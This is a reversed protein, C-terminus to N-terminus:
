DIQNNSKIRVFLPCAFATVPKLAHTTRKITALIRLHPKLVYQRLDFDVAIVESSSHATDGFTLCVIRRNHAFLLKFARHARPSLTFILLVRIVNVRLSPDLPIRKGVDEIKLIVVTVVRSVFFRATFVNRAGTERACKEFMDACSVVYDCFIRPM